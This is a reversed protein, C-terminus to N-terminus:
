NNGIIRIKARKMSLLGTVVPIGINAVWVILSALAALIAEPLFAGFIFIALVERVGLEGMATFPFYSQCFYLLFVGAYCLWIEGTFGVCYLALVFQTSFIAYRAVAWVFARALIRPKISKLHKLVTAFHPKLPKKFWFYIVSVAVLILLGYFVKPMLNAFSALQPLIPYFILGIVGAVLTVIGQIGSGAFTMLAGKKRAAKPLAATRGAFEGLRNPTVFGSCMGLLVGRFASKQNVVPSNILTTWKKMEFYLNVFTLACILILMLAHDTILNWSFIELSYENQWFAYALSALIIIPIILRVQKSQLATSVTKYM